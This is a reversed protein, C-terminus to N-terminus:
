LSTLQSGLSMSSLRVTFEQRVSEWLELPKWIRGDKSIVHIEEEHPKVSGFTSLPQELQARTIGLQSGQRDSGTGSTAPSPATAASSSPSSNLFQSPSFASQSSPVSSAPTYSQLLQNYLDMAGASPEVDPINSFPDTDVQPPALSALFDDMMAEDNADPFVPQDRYGSFSALSSPAEERYSMAAPATNLLTFPTPNAGSALAEPQPFPQSNKNAPYFSEFLAQVDADAQSQTQSDLPSWALSSESSQRHAFTPPQPKSGAIFANFPDAHFTQPTSDVSAPSDNM